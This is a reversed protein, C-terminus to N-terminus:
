FTRKNEKYMEQSAIKVLTDLTTPSRKMFREVLVYGLRYGIWRPLKGSGFFWEAHDYTTSMSEKAVRKWFKDEDKIKKIYPITHSVTTKEVFCAIGESVLADLLTTGYGVSNERVIHAAEHFITSPMGREIIRKVDIRDFDIKIDIGTRGVASGVIGTEPIVYFDQAQMIIVEIPKTYLFINRVEALAASSKKLISQVHRKPVGIM